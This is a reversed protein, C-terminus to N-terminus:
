SCGSKQPRSRGALLQVHGQDAHATLARPAAMIPDHPRGLDGSFVVRKERGDEDVLLQVSASGLMHGAEAFVARVGAILESPALAAVPKQEWQAVVASLDQRALLFM